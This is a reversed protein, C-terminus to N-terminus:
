NFYVCVMTSKTKSEESYLHPIHDPVITAYRKLFPIYKTLIRQTITKLTGRLKTTEESSMIFTSLPLSAVDGQEGEDPLNFNIRHKVAM